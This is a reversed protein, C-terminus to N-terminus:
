RFFGIAQSIRRATEKAMEGIEECRSEPARSAPAAVNLAAAIRGNASFVPATISVLDDKAEGRSVQMGTNRIEAFKRRLKEPDTITNPTLRELPGRLFSERDAEDLYALLVKGSGAHLPSRGGVVANVQIDRGPEWKSVCISERGDRVRLQITERTRGGLEALMPHSLRVIDFHEAAANALALAAVGLRYGVGNESRTLFGRAELTHLLRFARAKSDGSRRAIESVGLDAEQSVTQLLSLARDVAEVFYRSRAAPNETSM